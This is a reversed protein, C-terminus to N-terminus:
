GVADATLIVVRVSTGEFQDVYVESWTHTFGELPTTNIMSAPLIAVIRGRPSLVTAAAQLHALARGKSFPPNMLIRDARYSVNQAAWELFDARITNYGKAELVKTRVLALEICLTSEKPLFQALDGTGASPECCIHGPRIDLKIAAAAGIEGRTGYFQFSVKEPVVGGYILQEIVPQADYDFNVYLMSKDGRSSVTAGVSELVEIVQAVADKAKSYIYMSYHTRRYELCTLLDIVAMPLREMKLDYSGQKVKKPATRFKAPIALPYLNALICNLEVAVEPAVEFHVTGVKHIKVYFAGGDIAVRKGIATRYIRGLLQRTGYESPEGRGTIRGVVGRLDSIVGSKFESLYGDAGFVGAMILKKTFGWPQNTLHDGSMARFAGDVREAFFQGRQQLLDQLTPRVTSEDFPPCDLGSFQARAKERKAAPMLEFIETQNLLRHWFEVRLVCKASELDRPISYQYEPGHALRMGDTFYGIVGQEFAADIFRKTEVIAQERQRYQGILQEIVDFRTIGHPRESADAALFDAQVPISEDVCLTHSQVATM